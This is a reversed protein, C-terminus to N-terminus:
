DTEYIIEVNFAPKKLEEPLNRLDATSVRISNPSIEKEQILYNYVAENRKQILENLNSTAVSPDTEGMAAIEADM